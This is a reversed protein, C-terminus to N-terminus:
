NRYIGKSIVKNYKLQHLINKGNLNLNIVGFFM